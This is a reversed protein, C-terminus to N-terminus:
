LWAKHLYLTDTCQVAEDNGPGSRLCYGSLARYHQKHKYITPIFSLSHLIYSMNVSIYLIPYYSLHYLVHLICLPTIPLNASYLPLGYNCFLYISRQETKTAFEM